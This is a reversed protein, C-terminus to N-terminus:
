EKMKVATTKTITKSMLVTTTATTSSSNTMYLDYIENMKCKGAASHEHQKKLYSCFLVPGSKKHGGIFAFM